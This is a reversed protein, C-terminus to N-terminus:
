EFDSDSGYEGDYMKEYKAYMKQFHGKTAKSGVRKRSNAMSIIFGHRNKHGVVM